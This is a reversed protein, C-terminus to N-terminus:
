PTTSSTLAKDLPLITPTTRLRLRLHVLALNLTLMITPSSPFFSIRFPHQAKVGTRILHKYGDDDPHVAIATDGLMTEPRTTAVTIYESHKGDIIYRFSVLVGFDVKRDYGPVYL